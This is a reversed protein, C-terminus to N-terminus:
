LCVAEKSYESCEHCQPLQLLKKTVEYWVHIENEYEKIIPSVLFRKKLDYRYVMLAGFGLRWVSETVSSAWESENSYEVRKWFQGSFM